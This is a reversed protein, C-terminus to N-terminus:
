GNFFQLRRSEFQGVVQLSNLFNLFVELHELGVAGSLIVDAVDAAFHLLDVYTVPQLSLTDSLRLVPKVEFHEVKASMHPTHFLIELSKNFSTRPLCERTGSVSECLGDADLTCVSEYIYDGVHYMGFRCNAETESTLFTTTTRGRARRGTNM